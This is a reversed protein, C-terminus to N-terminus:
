LPVRLAVLLGQLHHVLLEVELLALDEEEQAAEPAPHVLEAQHVREARRYLPLPRKELSPVFIAQQQHHRHEKPAVTPWGPGGSGLPTVTEPVNLHLGVLGDYPADPHQTPLLPRPLRAAPGGGGRGVRLYAKAEVRGREKKSGYDEDSIFLREGALGCDKATLLKEVQARDLGFGTVKLDALKRMRQAPGLEQPVVELRCDEPRAQALTHKVM